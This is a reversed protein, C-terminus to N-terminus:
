MAALWRVAYPELALTDPLTLKLGSLLDCVATGVWAEPVGLTHQHPRLNVVILVRHAGDAHREFAAVDYSSFDEGIGGGHLAPHGRRANLLAAYRPTHNLGFSSPVPAKEFFPIREPWSREQGTYLLLTGGLSAACAFAAFAGDHGNFIEVPTADWANEDHNTTFRMLHKGAPLEAYADRHTPVVDSASHGECYIAKLKKYVKWDYAIDFGAAFNEIRDGEALFMLDRGCAAEVKPIAGAWFAAPVLDAVDCRFGDIHHRTAWYAMAETMAAPVDPHDYNLEAADTWDTDKPRQVAGAEDRTHWGDHALWPHDWATHNTIWDLLVRLGRRHAESVFHDLDGTTGFEPNVSTFDAISYPSGLVGKKETQGVPYIPMLWVANVGLAVLEDFREAAGRLDGAQTFARLNVCYLNMAPLDTEPAFPPPTMDDPERTRDAQIRGSEPERANSDGNTHPAGRLIHTWKAM